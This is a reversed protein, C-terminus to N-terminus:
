DGDPEWGYWRDGTTDVYFNYVDGEGTGQPDLRASLGAHVQRFAAEHSSAQVEERFPHTGQDPTILAGTVVYTLM